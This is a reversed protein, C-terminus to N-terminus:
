WLVAQENHVYTHCEYWFSLGSAGVSYHYAEFQQVNVAICPTLRTQVLRKIFANAFLCPASADVFVAPADDDDAPLCNVLCLVLRRWLLLLAASAAPPATGEFVAGSGSSFSSDGVALLCNVLRLVLCRCLLLLAFVCGSGASSNGEGM